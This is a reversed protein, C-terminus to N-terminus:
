RQVEVPRGSEVYVEALFADFALDKGPALLSGAKDTTAIAEFRAIGEDFRGMFALYVGYQARASASSPNLEVARKFGREAGRFDWDFMYTVAGLPAHAEALTEDLELARTAAARAEAFVAIPAMLGHLAAWCCDGLAAYSAAHGPDKKIAQEIYAIGKESGEPTYKGWEQRGKM